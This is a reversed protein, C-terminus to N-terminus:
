NLRNELESKLVKIRESHRISELKMVGEHYELLKKFANEYDPEEQRVYYMYLGENSDNKFGASHAKTALSYGKNLSKFAEPLKGQDLYILGRLTYCGSEKKIDHSGEIIELIKDLENLANFDHGTTRKTIKKQRLHEFYHWRALDFYNHTNIRKNASEESLKVAIDLLEKPLYHNANEADEMKNVAMYNYVLSLEMQATDDKRARPELLKKAHLLKQSAMIHDGLRVYVFGINSNCKGISVNNKEKMWIRLADYCDVLAMHYDGDHRRTIGMQLLCEARSNQDKFLRLARKLFKLAKEFEAQNKLCIGALLFLRAKLKDDLQKEMLLLPEIIDYGEHDGKRILSEAIKVDLKPNIPEKFSLKQGKSQEYEVM